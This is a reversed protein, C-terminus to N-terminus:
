PSISRREIIRKICNADYRKSKSHFNSVLVTILDIIEADNAFLKNLDINIHDTSKYINSISFIRLINVSSVSFQPTNTGWEQGILELLKAKIVNKEEESYFTKEEIEACAATSM